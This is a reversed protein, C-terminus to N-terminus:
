VYEDLIQPQRDSLHFAQPRNAGLQTMVLGRAFIRDGLGGLGIGLELSCPFLMDAESNDKYDEGGHVRFKQTKGKTNSQSVATQHVGLFPSLPLELDLISM